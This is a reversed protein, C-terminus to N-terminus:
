AQDTASEGAVKPPTEYFLHVDRQPFPICVGAEDFRMKVSRTIDWHVDWYDETKVLPRVIFDVSSEGLAHLRIVPEPDDLVKDHAAVIEELIKEAKPIDDGYSIGFVMDVRRMKQATVNKIVDGWIKSNPIVLTQNDITLVTTNVLSMSSVKGFVGGTEIFDGVDYPRYFLIMLGSAFNGLTDQLAFGIIFGAIGLGALLPGVSFGIQALAILVGLLLVVNATTSIIMNRLLRSVRLGSTDLGRTVIKRAVRALLRAIWLILVLVLFKFMLQPLNSGLWDAMGSFWRSFLGELVELDFVDTTVAGTTEILQQRYEAVPLELPAVMAVFRELSGALRRARNEEIKLSGRLDADDPFDSIQERLTQMDEITLALAVSLLQGRQTLTQRLWAEQVAADIGIDRSLELNRLLGKFLTDMREGVRSRDVDIAALAPGSAQEAQGDLEGMRTRLQDMHQQIAQPIGQLIQVADDKYRGPDGGSAEQEVVLQAFRHATDLTDMQRRELRRNLVRAMDGSAAEVQQALSRIDARDDELEQLLQEAQARFDPRADQAVAAAPLTSALLVLLAISTRQHM